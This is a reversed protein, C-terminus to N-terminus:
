IKRSLERFLRGVFNSKLYDTEVKLIDILIKNICKNMQM